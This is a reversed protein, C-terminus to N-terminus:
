WIESLDVSICYEESYVYEPINYQLLKKITVFPFPVVIKYKIFLKKSGKRITYCRSWTRPDKWEYKQINKSNIADWIMRMYYINAERKTHKKKMFPRYDSNISSVESFIQEGDVAMELIIIALETDEHFVRTIRTNRQYPLRLELGYVSKEFTIEQIQQAFLLKSTFIPILHVMGLWLYKKM